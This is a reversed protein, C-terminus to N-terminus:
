KTVLIEKINTKVGLIEKKIKIIEKISVSIKESDSVDNADKLANSMSNLFNDLKECADELNDLATTIFGLNSITM